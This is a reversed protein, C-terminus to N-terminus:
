WGLFRGAAPDRRRLGARSRSRRRVLEFGAPAARWRGLARTLRRGALERIPEERVRVGARELAAREGHLRAPGDTCLVVDRSWGSVVLASRAAEPGSGHVALPRDRV